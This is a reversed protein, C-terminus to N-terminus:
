PETKHGSATRHRRWIRDVTAILILYAACAAGLVAIQVQVPAVLASIALLGCALMLGYEALATKRHGWGLLVLRQYYHDRHARWIKEGALFRRALTVSADAIFPSFVLLPFWWNWVHQLWGIAGLAAALFGLPVSGVDGMFVRAPHFNSALFAAAAAAISFNVVAFEMHGSALAAAGYFSFGILTMGGALGDSGDMFNYLNAMWAFTLVAVIRFPLGIDFLADGAFVAAAFLHVALRWAAPIERVDNLFSIAILIGLAIWLRHPLDPWILVCALAIGAHLGIGGTRARPSTHLSRRNPHDLTLAALRSGALWWNVLLVTAFATLPVWSDFQV